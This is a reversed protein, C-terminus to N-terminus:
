MYVQIIPSTGHINSLIQSISALCSHYDTQDATTVGCPFYCSFFAFAEMSWRLRFRVAIIRSGPCCIEKCDSVLSKRLFVAVGGKGRSTHLHLSSSPREAPKFYVHHQDSIKDLLHTAHDQLWHEQVALIDLHRLKEKLFISISNFGRVNFTGFSLRKSCNVVYHSEM